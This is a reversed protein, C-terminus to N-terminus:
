YDEDKICGGYFILIHHHRDSVTVRLIDGKKMAYSGGSDLLEIIRDAMYGNQVSYHEISVTYLEGTLALRNRYKEYEEKYLIGKNCVSDVMNVTETFIYTQFMNNQREYALRVPVIFLFICGLIMATVKSFIDDM